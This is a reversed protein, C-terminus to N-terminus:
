KHMLGWTRMAVWELTVAPQAGLRLSELANEIIVCTQRMSVVDLRRSLIQALNSVPVGYGAQVLSRQVERLIRGALDTDVAGKKSTCDLLNGRGTQIFEGLKHMWDQLQPDSQEIRPWSLTLVFSRSVLTPLLIERTPALLVFINGPRPEELSKLLANAAAPTLAQAEAVVMVRYGHGVPPDSLVTRIDRITEISITGLAGDLFILDRYTDEIIQVCLRCQGCPAHEQQCHLRAAWFLSLNRREEITGGELLLSSPPYSALRDL